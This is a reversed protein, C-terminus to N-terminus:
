ALDLWARMALDLAYLEDVDLVGVATGISDVPVGFLKDVIPQSPNCMGDRQNAAVPRRM